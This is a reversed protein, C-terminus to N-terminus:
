QGRPRSGADPTPAALRLVLREMVMRPPLGSDGKLDLDAQLLWRLLQRARDPGLRRLQAVTKGLVFPKVGAQQLAHPLPVRRGAVEGERVLRAAAALRRLSASVQALIVIPQEGALLLRHLQRLAGAADGALAADLMQWATKVRWTGVTQAVMEASVKGAAGAAAALKALEQDLLGLETGVLEVLMEAGGWDLRIGHSQRAWEVLWRPLRSQEVATCAVQLGSRAVAKFLRTTSSWSAVELVLVAGPRPRAIYEELEARFRSVLPDADEIVVLRKGTGFMAVTALEDFVEHLAAAPGEFVRFCFDGEGPGLVERRLRLRVQRKLFPEDGFLVCLPGPPYKEPSRLYETAHVPPRDPM